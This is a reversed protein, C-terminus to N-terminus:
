QALEEKSKLYHPALLHVNEVKEWADKVEMFNMAYNIEYKESGLLDVDGVFEFQNIEEKLQDLTKIEESMLKGDKCLGTYARHSRADMIVECNKKGSFILYTPVTYLDVPKQTCLIKAFTMAIRVGTYSGPGRTIVVQEIDDRDWGAEKLCQNLGVFFHESQQKWSYENLCSICKDDEFCGIVLYKHCTDLVLTKMGIGGILKSM